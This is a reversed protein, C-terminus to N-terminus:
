YNALFFMGLLLVIRTKKLTWDNKETLNELYWWFIGFLPDIRLAYESFDSNKAQQGFMLYVLDYFIDIFAQYIDTYAKNKVKECIRSLRLLVQEKLAEDSKEVWTKQVLLNLNNEFSALLKTEATEQEIEKGHVLLSFDKEDGFLGAIKCAALIEETEDETSLMNDLASIIDPEIFQSILDNKKEQLIRM